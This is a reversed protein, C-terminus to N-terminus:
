RADEGDALTYGLRCGLWAKSDRGYKPATVDREKPSRELCLRLVREVGDHGSASL